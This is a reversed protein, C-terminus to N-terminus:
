KLTVITVGADGEGFEGLRYSEVQSNQKLAQHIEKRLVGAGKGHVIRVQPINMVVADDIFKEVKMLAESPYLGIVNLEMGSTFKGQKLGNTKTVAKNTKKKSNDEADFVYKMPVKVKMIGVEVLIQDQSDPLEKVVGKKDLNSLYVEMGKKVKVRENNVKYSAEKELRMKEELERSNKELEAKLESMDK